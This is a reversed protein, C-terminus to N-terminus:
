ADNEIVTRPELCLKTVSRIRMVGDLNADNTQDGIAITGNLLYNARTLAPAGDVTVTATGAADVALVYTRYAGNTVAVAFAQTNDAWGIAGEDLYMMQQREPPMGFVPTFAGLIGAGADAANHRGVSEVQMVIELAFPTGAAFGAPYSLLMMGSTNQGTTTTTVIRTYDAGYELTAPTRTNITWGQAVVDTGGTLLALPQCGPTSDPPADPPADPGADPDDPAGSSGCGLGGLLPLSLSALLSLLSRSASGMTHLM